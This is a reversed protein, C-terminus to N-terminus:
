QYLLKYIEQLDPSLIVETRRNGARGEATINSSVPHFQSKGSATIRSADFGNDITLIRVISTARATSLDWNDEFMKTKIPVDDTHGEISVTFDESSNLITALSKLAAKGKSDVVDSGSKFLLKEALSVHVNGDKMYVTLEDAKYNKLANGISNKLKNTIEAQSDIIDQLNKLRIAQERITMNSESSLLMLDNQVSAYEEQAVVKEKQMSAEEDKLKMLQLNRENLKSAMNANEKQLKDVRAESAIFKKNSVCSTFLLGIILAFFTLTHIPKKM